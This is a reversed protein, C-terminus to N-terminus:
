KIKAKANNVSNLMHKKMSEMLPTNKEEMCISTATCYSVAAEEYEELADHALGQRYFAKYYKPNIKSSTLADRLAEKFKGVNFHAASRNCWFIALFFFIFFREVYELFPFIFTNVM